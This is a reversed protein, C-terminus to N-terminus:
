KWIAQASICYVVFFYGGGLFFCGELFYHYTCHLVTFCLLPYHPSHSHATKSLTTRSKWWDSPHFLFGQADGQQQHHWDSDRHSHQCDVGPKEQMRNEVGGSWQKDLLQVVEKSHDTFLQGLEVDLPLRENRCFVSLCRFRSQLGLVLALLIQKLWWHCMPRKVAKRAVSQASGPVARHHGWFLSCDPLARYRGLGCVPGERGMVERYKQTVNSEKPWVCCIM